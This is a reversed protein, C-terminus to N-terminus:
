DTVLVKMELIWPSFRERIQKVLTSSPGVRAQVIMDADGYVEDVSEVDEFNSFFSFLEGVDLQPKLKLLIYCREKGFLSTIEEENLKLGTEEEIVRSVINAARGQNTAHSAIAEAIQRTREAPLTISYKSLITEVIRHSIFPSVSYIPARFDYELKKAPIYGEPKRLAMSQHVGARITRAYPSLPHRWNIPFRYIKTFKNYLEKISGRNIGIDIQHLDELVSCVEYMDAIGNRDGIGMVTCHLETAGSLAAEVTNSSAMGYDNHFHAALPLSSDASLTSFFDRVIRTTMIGSTDPVSVITAGCARLEKITSLITEISGKGEELFLRSADELTARIYRFGHNRAFECASKLREVAEEYSLGYLKYNRHLSSVAIYFACSDTEYSLVSDADEKSARAHVVAVSGNEKLIRVLERTEELSTRPPYALTIEIYRVGAESLAEAMKIRQQHPLVKFLEGERLTSDLIYPKM